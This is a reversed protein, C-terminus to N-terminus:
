RNIFTKKEYPIPNPHSLAFEAVADDIYNYIDDDTYALKVPDCDDDTIEGCCYRRAYEGNELILALVGELVRCREADLLGSGVLTGRLNDCFWAFDEDWNINGNGCAERRLKASQRLLEGQVTDAQGRAPVMDQWVRKCVDFHRMEYDRIGLAIVPEYMADWNVFDDM